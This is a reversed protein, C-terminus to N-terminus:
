FRRTPAPGCDQAARQSLAATCRAKVSSTRLWARALASLWRTSRRGKRVVPTPLQFNSTPLTEAFPQQSWPSFRHKEYYICTRSRDLNYIVFDPVMDATFHYVKGEEYTYIAGSQLPSTRIDNWIVPGYPPYAERPMPTITSDLVM